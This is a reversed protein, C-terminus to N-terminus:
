LGWRGSLGWIGLLSWMIGMARWELPTCLPYDPDACDPSRFRAPGSAIERSYRAALSPARLFCWLGWALLALAPVM